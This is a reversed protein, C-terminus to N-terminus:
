KIPFEIYSEDHTLRKELEQVRRKLLSLEEYVSMLTIEDGHATSRKFCKYHIEGSPGHATKEGAVIENNCASCIM